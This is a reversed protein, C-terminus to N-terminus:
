FLCLDDEAEDESNETDENDECYNNLMEQFKEMNDLLFERKDADVTTQTRNLPIKTAVGRDAAFKVPLSYGDDEDDSCSVTPDEDNSHLGNHLRKVLEVEKGQSSCSEDIDMRKRSSTTQLQTDNGSLFM